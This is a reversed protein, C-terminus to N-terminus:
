AASRKPLPCTKPLFVEVAGGDRTLIVSAAPPPGGLSKTCAAIETALALPDGAAQDPTDIRIEDAGVRPPGLGLGRESMCSALREAWRELEALEQADLSRRNQAPSLEHARALPRPADVPHSGGASVAGLALAAAAGALMSGAIPIASKSRVAV